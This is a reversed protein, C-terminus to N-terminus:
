AWGVNTCVFTHNNRKHSTLLPKSGSFAFKQPYYIDLSLYDLSLNSKLTPHAFFALSLATWQWASTFWIWPGYMHDISTIFERVTVISTDKWELTRFVPLFFIIQTGAQGRNYPCSGGKGRAESAVSLLPFCNALEGKAADPIQFMDDPVNCLKDLPLEASCLLLDATVAVLASVRGQQSCFCM